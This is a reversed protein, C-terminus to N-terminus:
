PNIIQKGNTEWADDESQDIPYKFCAFLRIQVSASFTGYQYENFKFQHPTHTDTQKTRFQYKRM